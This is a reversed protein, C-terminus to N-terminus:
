AKKPSQALDRRLPSREPIMSQGVLLDGEEPVGPDKSTKAAKILAPVGQDDPCSRCAFVAQERVERDENDDEV